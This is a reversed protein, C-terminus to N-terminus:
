ELGLLHRNEKSKGPWSYGDCGIEVADKLVCIAARTTEDYSINIKVAKHLHM